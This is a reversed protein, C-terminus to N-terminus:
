STKPRTPALLWGTECQNPSPRIWYYQPGATRSFPYTNREVQDARIHILLIGPDKTRKRPIGKPLTASHEKQTKKKPPCGEGLPMAYHCCARDDPGNKTNTNTHTATATTTATASPTTATTTATATATTPNNAHKKTTTQKIKQPPPAAPPPSPPTNTQLHTIDQTHAKATNHREKERERGGKGTHANAHGCLIPLGLWAEREKSDRDRKRQQRQKTRNM